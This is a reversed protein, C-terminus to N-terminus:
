NTLGFYSKKEKLNEKLHCGGQWKCCSKRITKSIFVHFIITINLQYKEEKEDVEFTLYKYIGITYIQIWSNRCYM